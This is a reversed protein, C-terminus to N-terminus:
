RFVAHRFRADIKAPTKKRLTATVIAVTPQATTTKPLCSTAPNMQLGLLLTRHSHQFLVVLLRCAVTGHGKIQVLDLCRHQAISRLRVVARVDLHVDVICAAATLEQSPERRM